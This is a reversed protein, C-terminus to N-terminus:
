LTWDSAAILHWARIRNQKTQGDSERWIKAAYEDREPLNIGFEGFPALAETVWQQYKAISAYSNISERLRWESWEEADAQTAACIDINEVVIDDFVGYDTGYDTGNAFIKPSEFKFDNRM